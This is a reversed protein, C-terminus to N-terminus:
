SEPIADSEQNNRSVQERLSSFLGSVSVLKLSLYNRM